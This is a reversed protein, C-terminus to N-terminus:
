FMNLQTVVTPGRWASPMLSSSGQLHSLTPPPRYSDGFRHYGRVLSFPPMVVASVLVSMKVPPIVEYKM